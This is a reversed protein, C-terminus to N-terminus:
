MPSRLNSVLPSMFSWFRELGEGDTLGWWDNFRPNYKVQCSWEHVYSHFVSTGFRLDSIRDSLLNRKTIHAELHCGIDYLVGVKHNPFDALFNRLISIPYYLKEGTKYINILMLPVDHRCTSAFLGNDDCKDWTTGNRTDDAAKHMESCPPNIGTAADETATLQEIDSAI